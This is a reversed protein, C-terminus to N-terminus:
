IFDALLNSAKTMSDYVLTVEEVSFEGGSTQMSPGTIKYPWANNLFWTIAPVFDRTYAIITVPYRALEYSLPTYNGFNGTPGEHALFWNWMIPDVSLLHKITVPQYKIRGPVMQTFSQFKDGVYKHEIYDREFDLGSVETAYTIPIGVAPGITVSFQFNILPEFTRDYLNPVETRSVKSGRGTWGSYSNPAPPPTGATAAPPTGAPNTPTPAPAPPTNGAVEPAADEPAGSLPAGSGDGGSGGGTGSGSNAEAM